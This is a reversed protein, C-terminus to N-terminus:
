SSAAVTISVCSCAPSKRSTHDREAAALFHNFRDVDGDIAEMKGVAAAVDGEAIEIRCCAQMTERASDLAQCSSPNPRVKAVFYNPMSVCAWLILTIRDTQRRILFASM